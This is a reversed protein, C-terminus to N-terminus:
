QFKRKKFAQIDTKSLKFWEGNARRDAFRRHWYAEIGSPDDTAITHELIAAEPLAIRIEKVRRELEDSRGIKYFEGSKILYVYGDSRQSKDGAAEPSTTPLLKLISAYDPNSVVWDRLAAVLRQRPTYTNFITKASPGDSNQLYLQLEATTPMKGLALAADGVAKLMSHPDSKGQLTNGELGAEKLADGWSAWIKGSWQHTKIGTYKQFVDRGPARGIEKAIRQIEAIIRERM